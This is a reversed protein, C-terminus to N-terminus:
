KSRRRAMILVMLCVALLTGAGSMVISLRKFDGRGMGSVFKDFAVDPETIADTGSLYAICNFFFDKNANARLDLQGNIAFTSDGVSIIRTPRLRLDKKAL